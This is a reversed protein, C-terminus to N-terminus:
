LQRKVPLHRVIGAVLRRTRSAEPERDLVRDGGDRWRLAGDELTVEYSKRASTEDFYIADIEAAVAPDDVLLGM